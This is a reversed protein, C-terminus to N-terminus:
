RGCLGMGKTVYVQCTACAGSGECANPVRIGSREAIHLLSEGVKGQVVKDIGVGTFRVSVRRSRPIKVSPGNVSLHPEFLEICNLARRDSGIPIPAAWAYERRDSRCCNGLPKTQTSPRRTRNELKLIGVSKGHIGTEARLIQIGEDISLMISQKTLLVQSRQVTANSACVCTCKPDSAFKGTMNRNSGDDKSLSM